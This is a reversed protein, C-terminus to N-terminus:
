SPDYLLQVLRADLDDEVDDEVVRGLAVLESRGYREPAEVVRDVVHEFLVPAGVLVIRAAAVRDVAVVGHHALKDDVTEDVPDHLHVDVPEAEVEGGDHPAVFVALDHPVRGSRASIASFGM